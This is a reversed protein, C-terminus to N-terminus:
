IRPLIQVGKVIARLLYARAFIVLTKVSSLAQIGFIIAFDLSTRNIRYGPMMARCFKFYPATITYILSIPWRYPSFLPLLEFILRSFCLIRYIKISIYLFVLLDTVYLGIHLFFRLINHKLSNNKKKM